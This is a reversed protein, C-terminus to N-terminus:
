ETNAHASRAQAEAAARTVARRTAAIPDDGFEEIAASEDRRLTRCPVVATYQEGDGAYVGVRLGLRVALNFADDSHVLPNWAYVISGDAFHLNLYGEGEVEETRVAGIARAALDLLERDAPAIEKRPLPPLEDLEDYLDNDMCVVKFAKMAKRKVVCISESKL